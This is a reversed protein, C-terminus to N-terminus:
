AQSGHGNFIRREMREIRIEHSALLKLDAAHSDMRRNAEHRWNIWDDERQSDMALFREFRIRFAVWATLGGSIGGITLGAIISSLLTGTDM